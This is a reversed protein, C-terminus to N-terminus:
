CQQSIDRRIEELYGRMEQGIHIKLACELLRLAADPDNFPAQAMKVALGRIREALAERAELQEPSDDLPTARIWELVQETDRAPHNHDADLLSKVKIATQLVPNNRAKYLHQLVMEMFATNEPEIHIPLACELLRIASEYDDFPPRAVKFALQMIEVALMSRAEGNEPSTDLPTNGVWELVKGTAHTSGNIDEGCYWVLAKVMQATRLIPNQHLQDNRETKDYDQM